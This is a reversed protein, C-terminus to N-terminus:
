ATKEEKTTDDDVLTDAQTMTKKEEETMEAAGLSNMFVAILAGTQRATMMSKLEELTLDPQRRKFIGHIIGYQVEWLEIDMADNSLDQQLAILRLVTDVPIEGPILWEKGDLIIKQDDNNLSDLNTIKM